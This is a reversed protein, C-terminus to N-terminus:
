EVIDFDFQMRGIPEESIKDLQGPKSAKELIAYIEISAEYHGINKFIYNFKDTDNVVTEKGTIKWQWQFYDLEITAPVVKAAFDVKQGLRIVKDELPSILEIKYAWPHRFIVGISEDYKASFCVIKPSPERYTTTFAAVNEVEGITGLDRFWEYEFRPQITGVSYDQATAVCAVEEEIFSRDQIVNLTLILGKLKTDEFKLKFPRYVDEAMAIAELIERMREQGFREFRDKGGRLLVYLNRAKIDENEWQWLLGTEYTCFPEYFSDPFHERVRAYFARAQKTQGFIYLSIIGLRTYVEDTFVSEPFRGLFKEYETFAKEYDCLVDLNYARAFLDFETFFDESLERAVIAYIDEAFGADKATWFGHHRFKEIIARLSLWAQEDSYYMLVLEIYKKYAVKATDLEGKQLYDQAMQALREISKADPETSLLYDKYATFLENIQVIMAAQSLNQVIDQFKSTDEYQETFKILQDVLEEFAVKQQEDDERIHAKWALYHMDVAWASIGEQRYRGATDIIEADFIHVNDYYNKWDENKEIFDLYLSKTLASYYDIVPLYRDEKEQKLKDLYELFELYRGSIFFNESKAKIEDGLGNIGQAYACLNVSLLLCSFAFIVSRVLGCGDRLIGM